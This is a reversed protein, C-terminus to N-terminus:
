LIRDGLEPNLHMMLLCSGKEFFSHALYASVIIFREKRIKQSKAAM